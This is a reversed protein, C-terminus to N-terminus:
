TGETQRDRRQAVSLLKRIAREYTEPQLVRVSSLIRCQRLGSLIHQPM